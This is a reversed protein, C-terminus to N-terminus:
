LSDRIQSAHDGNTGVQQLATRLSAEERAPRHRREHPGARFLRQSLADLDAAIFELVDALGDVIAGWLGAFVAASPAHETDPHTCTQQFTTFSPLPAFRITILRHRDLVFGVPSMVAHGGNPRYVLPVSIFLAGNEVYIRSSAEIESLDEFNPLALGTA